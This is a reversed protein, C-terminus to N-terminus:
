SKYTSTKKVAFTALNDGEGQGMIFTGSVRKQM